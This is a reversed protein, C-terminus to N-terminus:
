GRRLSIVPTQGVPGRSCSRVYVKLQEPDFRVRAGIMVVPLTGVEAAKYVWSKSMGLFRAAEGVNWLRDSALIEEVTRM